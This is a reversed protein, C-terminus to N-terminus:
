ELTQWFGVLGTGNLLVEYNNIMTSLRDQEATIANREHVLLNHYNVILNGGAGGLQALQQDIEANRASGMNIQGQLANIMTQPNQDGMELNKQAEHTAALENFLGKAARFKWLVDAEGALSWNSPSDRKRELGKSKLIQVPRVDDARAACCGGLDLCASLVVLGVIATPHTRM